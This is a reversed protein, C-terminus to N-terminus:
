FPHQCVAIMSSIKDNWPDGVYMTTSFEGRQGKFDDAFAVVRCGPRCSFSSIIDNWGPGVSLRRTGGTISRWKGGWNAHEYYVCGRFNITPAQPPPPPLVVPPVRIRLLDQMPMVTMKQVAFQSKAVTGVAALAVFSGVVYVTRRRM